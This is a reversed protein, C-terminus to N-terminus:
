ADAAASPSSTGWRRRYAEVAARGQMVVEHPIVRGAAMDAYGQEIAERDEPTLDEESWGSDQVAEAVMILKMLVEAEETRGSRELEEALKEAAEFDRQSLVSETVVVM